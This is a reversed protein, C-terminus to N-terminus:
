IYEAQLTKFTKDNAIPLEDDINRKVICILQSLIGLELDVDILNFKDHKNMYLMDNSSSPLAAVFMSFHAAYQPFTEKEDEQFIM